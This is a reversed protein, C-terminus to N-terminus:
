KGKMKKNKEEFYAAWGEYESVTLEGIEDLTKGL